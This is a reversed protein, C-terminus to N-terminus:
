NLPHWANIWSNFIFERLKGGNMQFRASGSPTLLERTSIGNDRCYDVCNNWLGDWFVNGPQRTFYVRKISPNVQLIKRINIPTFDHFNRAIDADRYSSLLTVHRQNDQDADDISQLLDTIAIRNRSCFEKWSDSNQQRLNIGEYIRPLVDWFYNNRTRGYFWAANNNIIEWGPNFTGVILTTPQFDLRELNLYEAFKHICAM